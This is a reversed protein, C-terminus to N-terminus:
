VRLGYGSTRRCTCAVVGDKTCALGVGLRTRVQHANAVVQRASWNHVRAEWRVCGPRRHSLSDYSQARARLVGSRLPNHGMVILWDATSCELVKELWVYCEEMSPNSYRLQRHGACRVLHPAVDDCTLGRHGRAISSSAVASRVGSQRRGHEFHYELMRQVDIGVVQMTMGSETTFTRTWQYGPMNWRWDKDKIYHYGIQLGQEGKYDHNGLILYWPM